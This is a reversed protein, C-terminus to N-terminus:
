DYGPDFSLNWSAHRRYSVGNTNRTDSSKTRKIASWMCLHSQSMVGTKGCITTSNGYEGKWWSMADCSAAISQKMSCLHPSHGARCIGLMCASKWRGVDPSMGMKQAIIRYTLLLSPPPIRPVSVSYTFNLIRHGDRSNGRIRHGDRLNRRCPARRTSPRLPNHPAPNKRLSRHAPVNSCDQRSAISRKSSEGM